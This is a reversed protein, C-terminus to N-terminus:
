RVRCRNQFHLRNSFGDCRGHVLTGFRTLSHHQPGCARRNSDGRGGEVGDACRGGGATPQLPKNPRVNCTEQVDKIGGRRWRSRAFTTKPFATSEHGESFRRFISIVRSWRTISSSDEAVYTVGDEEDRAEIPIRIQV